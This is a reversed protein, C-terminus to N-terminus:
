MEFIYKTVLLLLKSINYKTVLVFYFIYEPLTVFYTYKTVYRCQTCVYLLKCSWTIHRSYMVYSTVNTLVFLKKLSM